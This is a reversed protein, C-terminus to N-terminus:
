HHDSRRGSNHGAHGRSLGNSFHGNGHSSGPHSFGRHSNKKNNLRRKNIPQGHRHADRQGHAYGKKYARRNSQGNDQYVRRNYDGLYRNRYQRSTYPNSIGFGVVRLKSFSDNSYVRYSITSHYDSASSTGPGLLCMGGLLLLAGLVVKKVPFTRYITLNKM